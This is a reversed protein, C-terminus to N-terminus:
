AHHKEVHFLFDLKNLDKLDNISVTQGAAGDVSVYVNHEADEQIYASDVLTIVIKQISFSYEYVGTSQNEVLTFNRVTPALGSHNGGLEFNIDTAFVFKVSKIAAGYGPNSSGCSFAGIMDVNFAQDASIRLVLSGAPPNYVVQNEQVEAQEDISFTLDGEASIPDGNGKTYDISLWEAGISNSDASVSASYAYVAHVGSFVLVAVAVVACILTLTSNMRM